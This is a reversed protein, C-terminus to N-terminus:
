LFDRALVPPCDVGVAQSLVVQLYEPARMTVPQCPSGGEAGKAPRKVPRNQGTEM